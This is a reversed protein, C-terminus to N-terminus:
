GVLNTCITISMNAYDTKGATLNNNKKCKQVSCSIYINITKAKYQKQIIMIVRRKTESTRPSAPMSVPGPNKEEGETLTGMESSDGGGREM